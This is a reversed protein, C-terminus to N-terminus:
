GFFLFFSLFFSFLLVLLFFLLPLLFWLLLYLPSLTCDYKVFCCKLVIDQWREERGLEKGGESGDWVLERDPDREEQEKDGLYKSRQVKYSDPKDSGREIHDVNFQFWWIRARDERDAHLLRWLDGVEEKDRGKNDSSGNNTNDYAIDSDLM